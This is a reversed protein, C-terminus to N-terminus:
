ESRASRILNPTYGNNESQYILYYPDTWYLTRWSSWSYFEFIGNKQAKLVEWINIQMPKLIKEFENM